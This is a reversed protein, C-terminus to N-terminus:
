RRVLCWGEGIRGDGVRFVDVGAAGALAVVVQGYVVVREPRGRGALAHRISAVPGTSVKEADVLHFPADVAVLDAISQMATLARADDAGAPAADAESCADYLALVLDTPTTLQLARQEM